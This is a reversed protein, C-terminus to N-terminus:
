LGVSITPELAPCLRGCRRAVSTAGCPASAKTKERVVLMVAGFTGFGAGVGLVLVVAMARREM